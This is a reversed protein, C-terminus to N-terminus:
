VKPLFSGTFTLLIASLIMNVHMKEELQDPEKAVERNIRIISLGKLPCCVINLVLFLGQM